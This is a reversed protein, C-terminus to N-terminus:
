RTPILADVPAFDDTLVPVDGTKVPTVYLSEAAEIFRDIAVTRGGVLAQARRRIEDPSVPPADTGILIINRVSSPSGWQGFDVPF